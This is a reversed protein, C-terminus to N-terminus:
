YTEKLILLVDNPTVNRHEGIGLWGRETFRNAIKEATGEYDKTYASLKTDVGLSQFFQETKKIAKHAKEELNGESIGWVREAYQALKEKKNEFCHEYYRPAVIALTRAHDIGFLATLEHGIGHVGWDTPVGQSILGNLAMTCAWMFNSAAVYDKPDAVVKEGVELLTQLIGEAFRDQLAAGAPYTMYQELVHVFSDVVGNVIQRNPLSQIVTPDLVSCKPFLLPSGFSLKEKTARRSIVSGSNMESGTAPLTLVVSFPVAKEM